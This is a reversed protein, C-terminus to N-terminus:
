ANSRCTRLAREYKEHTVNTQKPLSTQRESPNKAGSARSRFGGASLGRPASLCGPKPKEALVDPNSKCRRGGGGLLENLGVGHRPTPWTSHAVSARTRRGAVPRSLEPTLRRFANLLKTARRQSQDAGTPTARRVRERRTAEETPNM